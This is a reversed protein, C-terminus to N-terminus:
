ITIPTGRKTWHYENAYATRLAIKVLPRFGIFPLSMIIPLSIEDSM